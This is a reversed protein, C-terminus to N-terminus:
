KTRMPTVVMVVAFTVFLLVVLSFGYWAIRSFTLKTTREDIPLNRDEFPIGVVMMGLMAFFCSLISFTIAAGIGKVSQGGIISIHHLLQIVGMLAGILGTFAFSLTIPQGTGANGVFSVLATTGGLVVLLSPWNLFTKLSGSPIIVWLM